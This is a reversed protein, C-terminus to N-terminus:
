SKGKKPITFGENGACPAYHYKYEDYWVGSMKLQEKSRVWFFLRKKYFTRRTSEIEVKYKM